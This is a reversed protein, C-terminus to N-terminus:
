SSEVTPDFILSIFYAIVGNRWIGNMAEERAKANTYIQDLRFGLILIDKNPTM